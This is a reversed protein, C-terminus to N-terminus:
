EEMFDQTEFIDTDFNHVMEKTHIKFYYGDIFLHLSYIEILFLISVYYM